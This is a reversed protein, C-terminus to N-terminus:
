VRLLGFYWDLVTEGYLMMVFGAAALFPGFALQSKLTKKKFAMLALGIAAGVIYAALIAALGLKAGLLAGLFVGIDTDGGGVWRGRSVVHQLFFVGGCLLAGAVLNLPSAGLGLNGVFVLAASTLVTKRPVLTYRLDYVFIILCVAAAYWQLLLRSLDASTILAATGIVQRATLVFLLGCIAEIV